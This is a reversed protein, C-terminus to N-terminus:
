KGNVSGLASTSTIPLVAFPQFHQAATHHVQVHQTRDADIRFISRNQRRCPRQAGSWAANRTLSRRAKKSFSRRKGATGPPPRSFMFNLLDQTISHTRVSNLSLASASCIVMAPRSTPRRPFRHGALEVIHHHTFHDLAGLVRVGVLQPHGLDVHAFGLQQVDDATRRVAAGAEFHAHGLDM